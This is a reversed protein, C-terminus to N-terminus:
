ADFNETRIEKGNIDTILYYHYWGDLGPMTGLWCLENGTRSLYDAKEGGPCTIEFDPKFETQGPLNLITNKM